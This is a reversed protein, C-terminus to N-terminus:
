KINETIWQNHFPVSIHGTGGEYNTDEDGWGWSAVGLLVPGEATLAWLPGGSDGPAIASSNFIQDNLHGAEFVEREHLKGDSGYGYGQAITQSCVVDDTALAAYPEPLVDLTHLVRLDSSPFAYDPHPIDQNVDFWAVGEVLIDTMGECHGATLVTHPGVITGSCFGNGGQVYVTSRRDVSPEGGVIYAETGSVEPAVCYPSTLLEAGCGSCFAAFIASWAILIFALALRQAHNM